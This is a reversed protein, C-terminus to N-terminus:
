DGLGTMRVGGLRPGPPYQRAEGDKGPLGQVRAQSEEGHRAVATHV